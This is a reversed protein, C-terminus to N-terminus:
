SQSGDHQRLDFLKLYPGSFTRLPPLRRCCGSSACPRQAFSVAVQQETFLFARIAKALRAVHAPRARRETSAVFCTILCRGADLRGPWRRLRAARERKRAPWLRGGAGGVGGGFDLFLGM